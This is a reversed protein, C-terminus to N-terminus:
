IVSTFERIIALSRPTQLPQFNADVFRLLDDLLSGRNKLLTDKLNAKQLHHKDMWMETQYGLVDYIDLTYLLPITYLVEKEITKMSHFYSFLLEYISSTDLGEIISKETLEVIYLFLNQRLPSFLGHSINDRFRITQLYQLNKLPNKRLEIDVFNGVEFINASKAKSKSRVGKSITAIKGYKSTLLNCIISTEQYKTVKLIFAQDSIEM